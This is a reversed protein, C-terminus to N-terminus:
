PPQYTDIEGLVIGVILTFKQKPSGEIYNCLVIQTEHKIRIVDPKFFLIKGHEVPVRVAFSTDSRRGPEEEAERAVQCRTLALIASVIGLATLVRM